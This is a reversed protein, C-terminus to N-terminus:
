NRPRTQRAAFAMLVLPMGLFFLNIGTLMGIAWTATGPWGYWILYALLLDVLGSFLLWGWHRIHHRLDFAAFIAAVGEVTFLVMLLFTLTLLGRLPSVLLLVGVVTALIGSLLSWWYGPLHRARILTVTRVFGGIFFLWGILIEVALTSWYPLAFALLGLVELLLGQLLFLQWHGAVAIAARQRFEMSSMPEGARM